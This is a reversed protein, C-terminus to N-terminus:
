GAEPMVAVTCASTHIRGQSETEPVRQVRHGGSEFKLRSYAGHGVIRVIVEKFGGVEGPEGLRDRRAVAASPM